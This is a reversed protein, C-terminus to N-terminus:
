ERRRWTSPSRRRRLSRNNRKPRRLPARVAARLRALFEEMDFPKTVYDDAGADLVAVMESPAATRASLVIVPVSSWGRLSKLVEIGQMDPLGLDLVVIDPHEEIAARLAAAGTRATTVDYGCVSLNVRLARVIQPEDEVLLVATM